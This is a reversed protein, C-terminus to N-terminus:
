DYSLGSEGGTRRLNRWAEDITPRMRARAAAIDDRARELMAPGERLRTLLQDQRQKVLDDIHALERPDLPTNENFQFKKACVRQWTLLEFVAARSLPNRQARGWREVDDATTIGHIALQAIYQPSVNRFSADAIRFQQLFKSRQRRLMRWQLAKVQKKRKAPLAALEERAANLKTRLEIFPYASCERNWQNMVENWRRQASWRGSHPLHERFWARSEPHLGISSAIALLGISQFMLEGPRTALASLGIWFLLWSMWGMLVRPLKHRLWRNTVRARRESRMPVIPTSEPKPVAAVASWLKELAAANILEVVSRQPGFLRVGTHTEVECWCCSSTRPRYHFQSLDCPELESELQELAAVWETAAPRNADGPQAFAREFLEAIRSGFSQLPLTGPPASMGLAASAAGYVFRSEAIAREIPMDGSAHRGAFPHRGLFLLHFILVAMGFADHNASRRLGRFARGQLEPATFLPVGVDCTFTKVRERIQFSDCDILVVTADRGILANGHNVDGIVHGQAHVVAFARAINAAARVVFRFDADPFSTRRSKPSYLEHVDERASVKPMLFGRVAKHEDLLLDIPWAAARLLAPSAAQTMAILKEVKTPSPPKRYIKAVINPAGRVPYVTGEGGKGLAPGLRVASPNSRRHLQM